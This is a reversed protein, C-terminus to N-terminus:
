RSRFRSFGARGPMASAKERVILHIDRKKLDALVWDDISAYDQELYYHHRQYYLLPSPPVVGMVGYFYTADGIVLFDQRRSALYAAVGEVDTEQLKVGPAAWTPQLWRVHSLRPM